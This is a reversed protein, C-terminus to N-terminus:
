PFQWSVLSAAQLVATLQTVFAMLRIVRLLASSRHSVFIAFV